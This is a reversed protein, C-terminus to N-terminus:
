ATETRWVGKYKNLDKLDKTNGVKIWLEEQENGEPEFLQVHLRKSAKDFPEAM